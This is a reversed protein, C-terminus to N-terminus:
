VCCCCCCCCVFLFVLIHFVNQTPWSSRPMTGVRYQSLYVWHCEVPYIEDEIKWCTDIVYPYPYTSTIKGNETNPDQGIQDQAHQWLRHSNVPWDLRCQGSPVPGKFDHGVGPEQLSETEWKVSIMSDSFRIFIDWKPSLDRFGRV